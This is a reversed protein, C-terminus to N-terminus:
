VFLRRQGVAYSVDFQALANSKTTETTRATVALRSNTGYAVCCSTSSCYGRAIQLLTCRVVRRAARPGREYADVRASSTAITKKGGSPHIRKPRAFVRTKKMLVVANEHPRSSKVRDFSIGGRRLSDSSNNPRGGNSRTRSTMVTTVSTRKSHGADALVVHFISIARARARTEPPDAFPCTRGSLASPFRVVSTLANNYTASSREYDDHRRRASM